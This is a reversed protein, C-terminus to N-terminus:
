KLGKGMKRYGQKIEADSYPASGMVSRRRLKKEPISALSMLNSSAVTPRSALMGGAEGRAARPAVGELASRGSLYDAARSIFSKRPAPSEVTEGLWPRPGRHVPPYYTGASSKPQIATGEDTAISEELQELRSKRPM